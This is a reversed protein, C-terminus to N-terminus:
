DANAQENSREYILAKTVPFRLHTLWEGSILRPAFVFSGDNSPQYALQLLYRDDNTKAEESFHWTFHNMLVVDGPFIEQSVVELDEFHAPDISGQGILGYNHSNALFQLHGNDRTNATLPVFAHVKNYLGHSYPADQHPLVSDKCHRDKILVRAHYLAVNDGLIRRVMRIITPFIALQLVPEPLEQMLYRGNRLDTLPITAHMERLATVAEVIQQREAQTFIDKVIAVGHDTLERAIHDLDVSTQDFMAAHKMAKGSYKKATSARSGNV